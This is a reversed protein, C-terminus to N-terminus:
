MSKPERVLSPIDQFRVDTNLAETNVVILVVRVQSRGYPQGSLLCCRINGNDVTRGETNETKTLHFSASMERGLSNLPGESHTPPRGRERTEKQKTKDKTQLMETHTRQARHGKNTYQVLTEHKQKTTGEPM